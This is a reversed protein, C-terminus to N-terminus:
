RGGDVVALCFALAEEESPLLCMGPGEGSVDLGSGAVIGIDVHILLSYYYYGLTGTEENWQGGRGM